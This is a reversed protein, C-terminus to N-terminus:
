IIEEGRQKRAVEKEFRNYVLEKLASGSLKGLAKKVRTMHECMATFSPQKSLRTSLDKGVNTLVFQYQNGVQEVHLAGRAELYPLIQYYRPDWPGYHHRIMKSEITERPDNQAGTIKSFFSPYRVFFDLKALKTLGEIRPLKTARDAVGCIAILLLLRAAHAELVEDSPISVGMPTKQINRLSKM